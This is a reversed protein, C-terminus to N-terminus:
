KGVEMKVDCYKKIQMYDKKTGRKIKGLILEPISWVRLERTTKCSLHIPIHNEKLFKGAKKISLRFDKAYAEREWHEVEKEEFGNDLLYEKVKSFGNEVFIDVDDIYEIPLGDKVLIFSGIIKVDFYKQTKEVFETYKENEM